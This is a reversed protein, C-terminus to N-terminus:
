VVRQPDAAVGPELDDESVRGDRAGVRDDREDLTAGEDVGCGAAVPDKTLGKLRAHGVLDVMRDPTRKPWDANRLDADLNVVAM